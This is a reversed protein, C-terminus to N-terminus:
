STLWEVWQRQDREDMAREKSPTLPKRRPREGWFAPPNERLRKIAEPREALILVDRYDHRAKQVLERLEWLRGESVKIIALHILEPALDQPRKGYRDLSELAQQAIAPVPFALALKKLVLQRTIQM